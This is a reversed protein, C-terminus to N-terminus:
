LTHSKEEVFGCMDSSFGVDCNELTTVFMHGQRRFAELDKREAVDLAIDTPM